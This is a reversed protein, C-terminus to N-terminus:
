GRYPTGDQEGAPRRVLRGALLNPDKGTTYAASLVYLTSGRLAVSTPGDLGDAAGLLTAHSGDGRVLVVQDPVNLAAAIDDGHGTFAFDDIGALGAAVTRPRGASGDGTIPLRLVTGRDLNTAWLSGGHVKLGNVGLFGTSALEPAHSWVQPSGGSVPVRYVAGRVSDAVYLTGTGADLALGNPLGDAPLAAIREPRGGPRLRWLGTLDATGTAYLVYLTGDAARVLGTTLPFGLAPTHVGGDAPAPLAALVRTRGEPTIEAIQRAGAFTVALGGGPELAVNEPSQGAGADFHVVVHADAVSPGGGPPCFGTLTVAAALAASALLSVRSVSM